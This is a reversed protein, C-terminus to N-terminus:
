LSSRARPLWNERYWAVTRELGEALTVEPEFGLMRRAKSIDVSSKYVEGARGQEFGVDADVGMVKELTKVLDLVTSEVGTALQFVEGEIGDAYAASVIARCLDAVHIFDRSQSGDGYIRLPEGLLLAKIFNPIANNKHLSFSGYVNSFRLSVTNMRFSGAFSSCYAEGALKSAGYPSLPRAVAGEHLPPTVDGLAAGSSAFVFRDIGRRRCEDLIRFTAVVNGEFDRAPDEVSPVVGTQAALHIVADVDKLAAALLTPDGVDGIHIEAPSESLYDRRGARLDDLVVVSRDAGAALMHVLNAGVFGCGGTVLVRQIDAM